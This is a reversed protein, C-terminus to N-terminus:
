HLSRPGPPLVARPDVALSALRVDAEVGGALRRYRFRGDAAHLAELVGRAALWALAAEVVALTPAPELGKVWWRAIGEPADCAEPHCCLYQSLQQVTLM